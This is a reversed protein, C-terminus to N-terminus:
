VNKTESILTGLDASNMFEADPWRKVVNKLLSMLKILSQERNGKDISGVFNIRHSNIVAPKGWRFAIEIEKLCDNVHDRYQNKYPEFTCNRRWYLMGEKNQSGWFRNKQYIEGGKPVYQQGCQHYKVGENALVKNLHEGFISQSAVFSKSSFGFIDIFLKLGETTSMEVMEKEDETHYECAAMYRKTRDKIDPKYLGLLAKQEFGLLEEKDGNRLLRLWRMPHLHERGHFQPFLLNSRIGDGKWLQFAKNEQYREFTKTIPEFHYHNFGNERIADFDPNAVLANATIVAHHGHVDKISSLVEFLQVIDEESELTDFRTFASKDVPVGKRLLYEYAAKSPMRISGWDDSEIVVIKRKTSWGRFNIYNKALYSKINM